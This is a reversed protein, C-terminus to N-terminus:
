RMPDIDTVAPDFLYVTTRLKPMNRVFETTCSHYVLSVIVYRALLDPYYCHLTAGCYCSDTFYKFKLPKVPVNHFFCSVDM